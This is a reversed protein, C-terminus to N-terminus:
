EAPRASPRFRFEYSRSFKALTNSSGWDNTGLRQSIEEPLLHLTVQFRSGQNTVEPLTFNLGNANIIPRSSDTTNGLALISLGTANYALIEDRTPDIGAFLAAPSSTSTFYNSLALATEASARRYRFLHPNTQVLGNLNTTARRAVYYGVLNLEGNAKSVVGFLIATNTLYNPIVLSPTAM